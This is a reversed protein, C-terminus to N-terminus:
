VVGYAVCTGINNFITTGFLSSEQAVLGMVSRLSSLRLSKTDKDDVLIRGSSPDYFRQLLQILTSKGCGSPGVLAVTEGAKIELSLGRLVPEDPRSPYSFTVDEFVIKGNVQAPSVVEGDQSEYDIKPVTDILEFVKCGAAQAAAFSSFNPAAQGIAFAGIIVSFFM